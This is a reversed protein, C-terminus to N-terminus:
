NATSEESLSSEESVISMWDQCASSTCARCLVQHSLYQSIQYEQSTESSGAPNIAAGEVVNGDPETVRFEFRSIQSDPDSAACRFKLVMGISFADTSPDLENNQSDLIAVDKCMPEGPIVAPQCTNSTPNATLRCKNSTTDCSWGSNVSSCETNTTCASNCTLAVPPQCTNSTPNTALRCKNSTTDCTYGANVGTCQSNNTCSSNCSYTQPETTQPPTTPISDLKYCGNPNNPLGVDSGCGYGVACCTFAEGGQNVCWDRGQRECSNMTTEPDECEAITCANGDQCHCVLPATCPNNSFDCAEGIAPGPLIISFDDYAQQRLDQTQQSLFLGAGAGVVILLLVFLGAITKVSLKTKPKFGDNRDDFGPPKEMATKESSTNESSGSNMTPPKSFDTASSGLNAFPSPDVNQPKNDNTANIM